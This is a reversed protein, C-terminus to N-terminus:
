LPAPAAEAGHRKVLEMSVAELLKLLRVAKSENRVGYLLALSDETLCQDEAQDVDLELTRVALDRVSRFATWCHFPEVADSKSALAETKRQIKLFPEKVTWFHAVAGSLQSQLARLQAELTEGDSLLFRQELLPRSPGASRAVQVELLGDALEEVHIAVDDRFDDLSSGASSKPNAALAHESM